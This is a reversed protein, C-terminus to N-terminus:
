DICSDDICIRNFTPDVESSPARGLVGYHNAGMCQVVGTADITCVNEWGLAIVDSLDLESVHTPVGAAGTCDGLEGWCEMEGATTRACVRHSVGDAWLFDYAHGPAALAPTTYGSTLTGVAALSGCDGVGWCWLDSGALACAHQFGLAVTVPAAFSDLAVLSTSMGGPSHPGLMGGRNSGRCSVTAGDAVCTNALGMHLGGTADLMRPPGSAGLNAAGLEGDTNLGWCVSGAPTTACFNSPGAELATVGAVLPDTVRTALEVRVSAAPDQAAEWNMSLGWCYVEGTSTSACATESACAVHDAQLDLGGASDRVRVARASCDVFTECTDHSASDGLQSASNAGWCVVQHDRRVACAFAYGVCVDRAGGCAVGVCPGADDGSGADAADLQGVAGDSGADGGADLPTGGDERDPAFCFRVGTTEADRCVGDAPCDADSACSNACRDGVCILGTPCEHGGSECREDVDLSCSGLGTDDLLCRSAIPCDRSEECEARCRGLRCVLPAGCAANSTCASGLQVTSECGLSLCALALVLLSRM